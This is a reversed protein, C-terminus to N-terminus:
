EGGYKKLLSLTESVDKPLPGSFGTTGNSILIWPLGQRQESFAKKIWEPETAVSVDKDYVRFDPQEGTKSCAKKVYDRIDLSTFVSIQSSPLEGRSGTEEVILVKLQGTKPVPPDVPEPDVDPDVPTPPPQPGQGIRISIRQYANKGTKTSVIQMIRLVDPKLGTNVIVTKGGDSMFTQLPPEIIWTLSGVVDKEHVSKDSKIVLMEGVNTEGVVPEGNSNVVEISAVPDTPAPPDPVPPDQSVVVPIYVVPEATAPAYSPTLLCAIAALVVGEFWLKM